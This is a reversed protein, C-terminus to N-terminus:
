KKKKVHEPLKKGSVGQRKAEAAFKKAVNPAKAFLYKRQASSRFPM